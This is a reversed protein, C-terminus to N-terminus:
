TSSSVRSSYIDGMRNLRGLLFYKRKYFWRLESARKRDDEIHTMIDGLSDVDGDRFAEFPPDGQKSLCVMRDVKEKLLGYFYSLHSFEDAEDQLKRIIRSLSSPLYSMQSSANTPETMFEKYKQERRKLEANHLQSRVRVRKKRNTSRETKLEQRLAEIEQQKQKIRDEIEAERASAVEVNPAM